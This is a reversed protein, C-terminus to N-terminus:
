KSLNLASRLEGSKGASESKRDRNEHFRSESKDPKAAAEPWSEILVTRDAPAIALLAKVRVETVERKSERLLTEVEGKAKAATAEAEAKQKSEMLVKNDERLKRVEATLTRVSEQLGPDAPAPTPPAGGGTVQDKVELLMRIKEILEDASGDMDLIAMVATRFAEDVQQEPTATEGIEEGMEMTEPYMETGMEQLRGLLYKAPKVKEAHERLTALLKKKMKRTSEFLNSNTAPTDVVDVSYVKAIRTVVVTDGERRSAGLADHSLGFDKFREAAELIAETDRHTTLYELDGYLAGDDGQRVNVLKGWRERVRRDSDDDPDRHDFFVKIGEYLPIAERLASELYRRGNKSETGVIRVGRIVGAERDVKDFPVSYSEQLRRDIARTNARLTSM